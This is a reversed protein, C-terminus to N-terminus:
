GADRFTGIVDDIMKQSKKENARMMEKARAKKLLISEFPKLLNANLEILNESEFFSNTTHKACIPM